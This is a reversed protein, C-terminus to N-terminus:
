LVLMITGKRVTKLGTRDSFRAFWVYTGMILTGKYKGNWKVAPSYSEFVKEGWRNFVTISFDSILSLNGLPGFTENKGDGNPTFANPFWIEGCDAVIRFTDSAICGQQDKVTVWYNGQQTANYTSANSGDQWAYSVFTGPSLSIKATGCIATDAGLSISLPNINKVTATATKKCGNGDAVIVSYKGPLLNLIAPSNTNVPFWNYSYPLIGGTANAYISGNANNCVASVSDFLVNIPAPESITFAKTSSCGTADKVTVTYNGKSLNSIAPSSLGNSWAISYAPSGGTITVAVGGNNDGNCTIATVSTQVLLNGPSTVIGTDNAVCGNKDTVTLTYKGSALNSIVATSQNGPLWAYTYPAVGGNVVVSINGNNNGCAANQLTLKSVVLTPEKITASASTKCGNNDTINLAYNGAAVNVLNAVNGFAPTWAYQYPAAGGTVTSIIKGNGNKCLADTVNLLANLASPPEAIDVSATNSCGAADKVTVTYNGKALNSATAGTAGNSWTITYPTVGGTIVVTATGTKDGFCKVDTHNIQLSMTTGTAKISAADSVQCNNKDTVTLFYDQPFLGSIAATNYGGPAWSYNYPLVGGTITAKATGNSNGCLADTFSMVSKLAAPEAITTSASTSCGAQDKITVTYTNGSLLNATANSGGSPLWAYSYVGSGGSVTVTASGNKDGNCTVDKKASITAYLAAPAALTFSRNESCQNKDKVVVTYDGAALNAAINTTSINPTWTYTYPATGGTTGLTIKGDNNNCTPQDSITTSSLLLPENITINDQSTCVNSGTVTVVYTGKGLNVATANQQAPATNWSFNLGAINPAPTVIVSGNMDGNCLPENIIQTNLDLITIVRIFTGPANDPGTATLKVTYQGAASFNHAPNPLTSANAAGSGPDGFDWSFKPCFASTNTFNVNSGGTCTFFYSAFNPLADGVTFDDFAFGDYGNCNTGAGFLFRFQVSTKGALYPMTHSAIVWKNSGNGAGCGGGSGLSGSWGGGGAFKINSTNFWNLNFCNKTDSYSGVDYWNSGNDTSYQLVTGDYNYETEWFVKFGVTPYKLATLNYCPSKVWSLEGNNYSNKSLGGTIWCKTGSAAASIIPKNPSGWAWDSATGGTTWGGNSIDFNQTNPFSSICQALTYNTFFCVTCFLLLLQIRFFRLYFRGTIM